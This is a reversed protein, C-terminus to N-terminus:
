APGDSHGPDIQVGVGSETRLPAGHNELCRVAIGAIKRIRELAPGDGPNKAWVALARNMYHQMLALEGSVELQNSNPWTRDQYDREGDIANFVLQRKPNAVAEESEKMSEDMEERRETIFRRLEFDERFATFKPETDSATEKCYYEEVYKGDGVVVRWMRDRLDWEKEVKIPRGFPDEEEDPLQFGRESGHTHNAM